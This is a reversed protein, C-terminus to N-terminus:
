RPLAVDFAVSLREGHAFPITGHWMWSPFLVLQAEKPEIYRAPPLDLGLQAPPQGLTLWGAHANEDERRDPLAIYLASSIWGRPHVHSAHFGAGRLRVSWSGSFRIRGDRRRSLLPHEPDRPPLEAIHREVAAVVASRLARVQPQIRSFLPGDTQTGGRVSQDLYEGRAMHLSRLFDALESVPRLEEGLDIISVLRPDGQLWQWRPDGAVRWAVAAYPWAAAARDTALESDIIPLAEAARGSRLLHRIRWIPLPPGGTRDLERFMEDARETRGLEAAAIAAHPLLIPGAIGASRAREVSTCLGEFDERAIQLDFLTTWLRAELPLREIASELPKFAGGAAGLLSRLQALQAQGQLWLPAQALVASLEAEAQEGRGAATRAAALGLLVEGNQPDLRRAREFLAEAEVGAELAVRARGHAISADAPALRAAEAFSELATAHEDLARELLGKWQWLRANSSREAASAILPLAREEEGEALADRALEGLQNPDSDPGASALAREVSM